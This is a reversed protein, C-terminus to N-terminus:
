HAQQLLARIGDFRAVQELYDHEDCWPHLLSILESRRGQDHFLEALDARAWLGYLAASQRDAIEIAKQFGEEATEADQRGHLSILASYRYVEAEAWHTSGTVEIAAFADGILTEAEDVEGAMMLREAIQAYFLAERVHRYSQHRMKGVVERLGATADRRETSSGNLARDLVLSHELYFSLLPSPVEQMQRLSVEEYEQVETLNGSIILFELRKEMADSISMNHNLELAIELAKDIEARAEDLRGRLTLAIGLVGHACEVVSHGGFSDGLTGFDLDKCLELATRTHHEVAELDGVPRAAGWSRHHAHIVLNTDGSSHAFELLQAALSRVEEIASGEISYHWTAWALLFRSRADAQSLDLDQALRYLRQVEASGQGNVNEEATALALLYVLEEADREPSAPLRELLELATRYNAITEQDGFSVIAQQGALHFQDIAGRVDGAAALHRGLLEPQRLALEPFRTTIAEAIRRHIEQRRSSVMTQYAVDQTLAHKFAYQSKAGSIQVYILEADQLRVLSEERQEPGLDDIRSLMETAFSIGIASSIQLVHKDQDQLTDIRSALVAQVTEPTGTNGAARAHTLEELFFPNGQGRRVIDAFELSEDPRALSAVLDSSSEASLRTLGLQTATSHELWPARYGPRHTVILLVNMSVLQQILRELVLESSPDIWHLNEIVLVTPRDSTTARVLEWLVPLAQEMAERSGGTRSVASEPILLFTLANRYAPDRPEFGAAVADIRATIQEADADSPVDFLQRMLHRIPLFPTNMAYPLCDALHFDTEAPTLSRQLEEVVRSKGIGPEGTISIVSGGTEPLSDLRATLLSMERERGVFESRMRAGPRPVGSHQVTWGLIRHLSATDEFPIEQSNIEIGVRGHMLGSALIEGGTSREAVERAFETTQGVASFVQDRDNGRYGVVVPGTHLGVCIPLEGALERSVMRQLELATSVARRAHDEQALPAGFLAVFGDSLWQSISGGYSRVIEDANGILVDFLESMREEGVSQALATAEHVLCHLVSVQKHEKGAPFQSPQPLREAPTSQVPELADAGSQIDEETVAKSSSEVELDAVFRYGHGHRTQIVKQSHGDDGVAQRATKICTNLTADGVVVGPWIEDFLEQKTIVRDRNEILYVLLDFVKPRLTVTQDQRHLERGDTDLVLDNFRYSV